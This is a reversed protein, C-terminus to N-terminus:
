TLEFRVGGAGKTRLVLPKRALGVVGTVQGTAARVGTLEYTPPGAAVADAATDSAEADRPAPRPTTTPPGAADGGDDGPDGSCSALGASLVAVLLLRSALAVM